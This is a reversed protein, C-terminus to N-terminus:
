LDQATRFVTPVLSTSTCSFGFLEKVLFNLKSRTKLGFALWSSTYLVTTPRNILSVTCPVTTKLFLTITNETWNNAKGGQELPFRLQSEYRLRYDYTNPPRFKLIAQPHSDERSAAPVRTAAGRLGPDIGFGRPLAHQEQTTM